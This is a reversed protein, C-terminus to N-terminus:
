FGMSLQPAHKKEIKILHSRFYDFSEHCKRIQGRLILTKIIAVSRAQTNISKSPNFEIDSFADFMDLKNKLYDEHPTLARLFLWDYFAHHPLNEYAQDAFRFSKILGLDKDKFFRKAQIPAAFALEPFPGGKEFVKSAQYICEIKSKIGSLEVDLTFASLKRGLELNSKTSIELVSKFGRDSAESHLETVNKKKQSPAMGSHWHFQLSIEEFLAGKKDGSVFIPRHAM